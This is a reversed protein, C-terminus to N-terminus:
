DVPSSSRLKSSRGSTRTSNHELHLVSSSISFATVATPSKHRVLPYPARWKGQRKMGRGSLDAFNHCASLWTLANSRNGSICTSSLHDMTSSKLLHSMSDQRPIWKGTRPRRSSASTTSGAIASHRQFSPDRQRGIGVKISHQPMKSQAAGQPPQMPREKVPKRPTPM